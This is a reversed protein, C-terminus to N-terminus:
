RRQDVLARLEAPLRPALKKLGTRAQRESVAQEWIREAQERLDVPGELALLQLATMWEEGALAARLRPALDPSVQVPESAKLARSGAPRGGQQLDREVAAALTFFLKPFGTYLHFYAPAMVRVPGILSAAPAYIRPLSRWKVDSFRHVREDDAVVDRTTFRHTVGTTRLRLDTGSEVCQQKTDNLWYVVMPGVYLLDPRGDEMVSDFTLTRVGDELVDAHVSAGVLDLRDATVHGHPWVADVARLVAEAGVVRALRLEFRTLPTVQLGASGSAERLAAAALTAGPQFDGLALTHGARVPVESAYAAIADLVPPPWEPATGDERPAARLWLGSGEHRFTFGQGTRYPRVGRVPPLPEGLAEEM